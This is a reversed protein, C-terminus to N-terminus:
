RYCKYTNYTNYFMIVASDWEDLIQMEMNLNKNYTSGDTGNYVFRTVPAKIDFFKRGDYKENKDIESTYTFTGSYYNKDLGEKPGYKFTGDRNLQLITEESTKYSSSPYSTCTWEGYPTTYDNIYEGLFGLFSSFVFISLLLYIIEIVFAIASTIIGTVKFGGKQGCLSFILGLLPLLFAIPGIILSFIVGVIGLIMGAIALGKSGKKPEEKVVKEVKVEEKKEVAKPATTKKATTKKEAVPKVEEKKQETGCYQCFTDTKKIEKGCKTCKM